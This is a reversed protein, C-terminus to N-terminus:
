DGFPFNSVSIYIRSVKDNDSDTSNYIEFIVYTGNQEYRYYAENEPGDHSGKYFDSGYLEKIRSVTDGVKAGKDTAYTSTDTFISFAEGNEDYEFALDGGKTEYVFFTLGDHSYYVRGDNVPNSVSVQTGAWGSMNETDELEINNEKLTSILEEPSLGFQIKGISAPKSDLNNTSNLTDNNSKITNSTSESTESGDGGAGNCGNLPILVFAMAMIICIIKKM